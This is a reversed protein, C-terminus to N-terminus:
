VPGFFTTSETRARDRLRHITESSEHEKAALLERVDRWQRDLEAQVLPHSLVRLEEGPKNTDIREKNIVFNDLAEYAVRAAWAAEQAEGALKTRLAYIVATGANQANTAEQTWPGRVGDEHPILSLAVEIKRELDTPNGPLDPEAWVEQLASELANLVVRGAQVEFLQYAPLQRQACAAAFAIRFPAPLRELDVILRAEDFNRMM